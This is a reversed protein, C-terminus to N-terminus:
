TNTDGFLYNYNLNRRKQVKKLVCCFKTSFFSFCKIIQFLPLLGIEKIKTAKYTLKLLQLHHNANKPKVV